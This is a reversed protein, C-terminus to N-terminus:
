DEEEESDTVEEAEDTPLLEEEEEEVVDLEEEAVQYIVQVITDESPNLITVGEPVVLDGVSVSDGIEALISIDIEVSPILANPLAEIELENLIQVLVGGEEVALSEGTLIVSVPVRVTETLSLAQLDIHTLTRRITDIQTDRFIVLYPDEHGDVTVEVTSSTGVANLVKTVHRADFQVVVPDIHHGYIVGPVINQRRLAKVQKGIVTRPSAHLTISDM